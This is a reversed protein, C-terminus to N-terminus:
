RLWTSRPRGSRGVRGPAPYQQGFFAAARAWHGLGAATLRHSVDNTIASITSGAVGARSREQKPVSAAVGGIERWVRGNDDGDPRRATKVAAAISTPCKQM